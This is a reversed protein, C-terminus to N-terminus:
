PTASLQLVTTSIGFIGRRTKATDIIGDNVESKDIVFRVNEVFLKSGHLQYWSAVDSAAIAGYIAKYPSTLMGWSRLAVSLDIEASRAKSRAIGVIDSFNIEKFSLFDKNFKNQEIIFKEIKANIRRDIPHTSTHVIIAVVNTEINRLAGEIQNRFRHLNKNQETWELALVSEIGDRFRTFEPLTFGGSGSRWKSQVFFLTLSNPDFFVADIGDDDGGDTICAGAEVPSIGAENALSLAALARTLFYNRREQEPKSQVDDLRIHPEFIEKLRTAVKELLMTHQQSM